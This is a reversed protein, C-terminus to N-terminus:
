VVIEVVVNLDDSHLIEVKEGTSSVIEKKTTIYDSTLKLKNIFIEGDKNLTEVIQHPEHSQLYKLIQPADKRFHPGIKDMLPIIEVVKEQADPQGQMMKLDEIRMTGKIDNELENLRHTLGDDEYYITM